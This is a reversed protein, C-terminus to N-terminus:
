PQFAGEVVQSGDGCADEVRLHWTVEDSEVTGIVFGMEGECPQNSCISGASDMAAQPSVMGFSAGGCGLNCEADAYPIHVVVHDGPQVDETTVGNVVLYADGLTPATNGACDTPCTEEEYLCEFEAGDDTLVSRWGAEASNYPVDQPDVDLCYCQKCGALSAVIPLFRRIEM